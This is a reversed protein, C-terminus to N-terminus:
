RLAVALHRAYTYYYISWFPDTDAFPPAALIGWIRSPIRNVHEARSSAQGYM